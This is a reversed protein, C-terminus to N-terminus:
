TAQSRWFISGSGLFGWNMRVRWPMPYLNLAQRAFEIATLFIYFIKLWWKAEGGAVRPGIRRRLWYSTKLGCM